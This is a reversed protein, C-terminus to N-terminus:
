EENEEESKSKGTLVRRIKYFYRRFTYGIAGLFGLIATVIVSGSGPDVYAYAINPATLSTWLYFCFALFLIKISIGCDNM